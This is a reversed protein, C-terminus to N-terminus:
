ISKIIEKTKVEHGRAIGPAWGSNWMVSVQGTGTREERATVTEWDNITKSPSQYNEPPRSLYQTSHVKVPIKTISKEHNSQLKKTKNKKPSSSCLNLALKM